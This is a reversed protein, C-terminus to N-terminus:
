KNAKLWREIERRKAYVGWLYNSTERPITVHKSDAKLGKAVNGMGWNYRMLAKAWQSERLRRLSRLYNIGAPIAKEPNLRDDRKPTVVLGQERATPAMFQMIGAAGVRNTGKIHTPNFNSEQAMVALAWPLDPNDEGMHSKAIRIANTYQDYHSKPLKDVTWASAQKALLVGLVFAAKHKGPRAPIHLTPTKLQKSFPWPV